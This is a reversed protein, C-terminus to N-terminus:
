EGESIDFDQTPELVGDRAAVFEEVFKEVDFYEAAYEM